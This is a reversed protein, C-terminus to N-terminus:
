SYIAIQEILTQTTTPKNFVRLLLGLQSYPQTLSIKLLLAVENFHGSMTPGSPPRILSAKSYQRQSLNQYKFCGGTCLLQFTILNISLNMRQWNLHSNVCAPEM